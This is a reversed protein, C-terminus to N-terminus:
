ESKKKTTKKTTSKKSSKTIKKKSTKKSTKKSSKKAPKKKTKEGSEEETKTEKKKEEAVQEAAEEILKKNQEEPDPQKKFSHIFNVDGVKLYMQLEYSLSFEAMGLGQQMAYYQPVEINLTQDDEKYDIKFLDAVAGQMRRGVFALVKDEFKEIREMAKLKYQVPKGALPHNFDIRIRGQEASIVYGQKRTKEDYFEMGVQPKKKMVSIFKKFSMKEINKFDREGFGDKPELSIVKEEGYKMNQLEEDLKELLFGKEGVLVLEPTYMGAKEPDFSHMKKADELNTAEFIISKNDIATPTTSGVKDLKILDGKKIPKGFYEKKEEVKEETKEE